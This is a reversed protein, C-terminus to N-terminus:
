ATDMQLAVGTDLEMAAQQSGQFSPAPVLKGFAHGMQRQRAREVIAVLELLKKAVRPCAVVDHRRTPASLRARKPQHSGAGHRNALGVAVILSRGTIPHCGSRLRGLQSERPGGHAPGSCALQLDRCSKEGYCGCIRCWALLGSQMLRHPQGAAAAGAAQGGVSGACASAAFARQTALASTHRSFRQCEACRERNSESVLSHPQRPHM